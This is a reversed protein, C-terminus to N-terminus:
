KNKFKCVFLKSFFLNKSRIINCHNSIIKVEDTYSTKTGFYIKPQFILIAILKGLFSQFSTVVIINLRKNKKLRLLLKNIETTKLLYLSQCFIITDFNVKFINKVSTLSPVIDYNIIKSKQKQLACRQKLYGNGCGFDLVNQKKYFKGYIIIQDYM